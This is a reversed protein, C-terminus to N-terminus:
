KIVMIVSCLASPCSYSSNVQRGIFVSTTPSPCSHRSNVVKWHFDNNSISISVLQSSHVEERKQQKATLVRLNQLVSSSYSVEELTQSPSNSQSIPQELFVRPVQRGSQLLFNEGSSFLLLLLMFPQSHTQSCHFFFFSLYILAFHGLILHGLM